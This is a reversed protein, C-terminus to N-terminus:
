NVVWYSLCAKNIIPANSSKITFSTGATRASVVYNRGTGTNCTIGLRAGLSQDEQVFIQSNATVATTNVVLTTGGNSLAVSGSPAGDCVAPSASSNCNVTTSLTGASLNGPVTTNMGTHGIKISTATTSGITLSGATDTDIGLGGALIHLFNSFIGGNVDLKQTPTVTGIGVDSNIIMKQGTRGFNMTTALTTGFNLVGSTVSDIASGIQLFLNGSTLTTNVGDDSFLADGITTSTIFKALRNITNVVPPVPPTISIDDVWYDHTASDESFVTITDIHELSGGSAIDSSYPGGNLSVQFVNGLANDFKIDITTWTNISFTGIDTESGQGNGVGVERERSPNLRVSIRNLNAAGGTNASDQIYFEALNGMVSDSFNFEYHLVGSSIPGFTRSVGASLITSSSYLALGGQGGSPPTDSVWAGTGITWASNWNAGGNAGNLSAGNAYSDFNETATAAFSLSPLFLLTAVFLFLKKM